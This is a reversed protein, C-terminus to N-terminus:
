NFSLGCNHARNHGGPVSKRCFFRSLVNNESGRFAKMGLNVVFNEIADDSERDSTAVIIDQIFRSQKVREIVHWLVPKGCLDMMVKGPLRQSGMRAQIIVEIGTNM